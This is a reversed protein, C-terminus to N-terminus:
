SVVATGEEGTTGKLEAGDIHRLKYVLRQHSLDAKGADEDVKESHRAGTPAM